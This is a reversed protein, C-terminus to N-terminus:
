VQDWMVLTNGGAYRIPVETGEIGELTEADGGVSTCFEYFLGDESEPLDFVLGTPAGYTCDLVPVFLKPETEFETSGFRVEPEGLTAVFEGDELAGFENIAQAAREQNSESDTRNYRFAQWLALLSLTISM